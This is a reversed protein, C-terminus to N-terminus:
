RITFAPWLRVATMVRLESLCINVQACFRWGQRRKSISPLGMSRISISRMTAGPYSKFLWRSRTSLSVSIRCSWWIQLHLAVVIVIGVFAETGLWHRFGGLEGDPDHQRGHAADAFGGQRPPLIDIEVCADPRDRFIVDLVLDRPQVHEQRLERQLLETGQVAQSSVCPEAEKRAVVSARNVALRDALLDIVPLRPELFAQIPRRPLRHLIPQMVIGQHEIRAFPRPRWM